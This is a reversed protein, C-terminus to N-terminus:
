SEKAYKELEVLSETVSDMRQNLHLRALELAQNHIQPELQEYMFDFLFEADFDGIEVDLEQSLYNQLKERYYEKQQRDM